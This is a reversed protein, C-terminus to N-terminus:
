LVQEPTHRRHLWRRVAYAGGGIVAGLLIPLVIGVGPIYSIYREAWNTPVQNLPELVQPLIRMASVDWHPTYEALSRAPLLVLPYLVGGWFGPDPWLFLTARCYGLYYPLFIAVPLMSWLVPLWRGARLCMPPLWFLLALGGFFVAEFTVTAWYRENRDLRAGLWQMDALLYARFDKSESAVRAEYSEWLFARLRDVSNGIKEREAAVLRMGAAKDVDHNDSLARVQELTLASPEAIIRNLMDPFLSMVESESVVAYHEGEIAIGHHPIYVYPDGYSPVLTFREFDATHPVGPVSLWFDHPNGWRISRMLGACWFLAVALVALTLAFGSWALLRRM